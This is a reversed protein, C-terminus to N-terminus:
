HTEFATNEPMELMDVSQQPNLNSRLRADRGTLATLLLRINSLLKRRGHGAEMASKRDSMGCKAHQVGADRRFRQAIPSRGVPDYCPQAPGPRPSPRPRAYDVLVNVEPAARMAPGITCCRASFSCAVVAADEAATLGLLLRAGCGVALWVPTKQSRQPTMCLQDHEELQCIGVRRGSKKACRCEGRMGGGLGTLWSREPPILALLKSSRTQM